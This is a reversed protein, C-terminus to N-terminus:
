TRCAFQKLCSASKSLFSICQTEFFAGVRFRYLEFCFFVSFSAWFVVGTISMDDWVEVLLQKLEDFNSVRWKYVREQVVGLDQLRRPESRFQQRRRGSTLVLSTTHRGSCCSSPTAPAIHRLATKHLVFTDCHRRCLRKIAPLMQQSLWVDRYYQCNVKM